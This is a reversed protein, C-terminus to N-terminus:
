NLDTFTQCLIDRPKCMVKLPEAKPLTIGKGESLDVKEEGVRKWEFCHILSGLALGVIRQALAAGPCARRGMGFPIILKHRESENGEFREPNFRLPEDWVNPDRHMAWANVMLLTGRPVDYGAVKCDDSSFHPLLLPVAPFLRMTEYIICQLYPLKALDPENLFRDQGDICNDIEDRAKRLVEPHNVLLTMAWEITVSSTDTGAVLLVLIFGKIIEDTYYEPQSEQLSLLHDVVSNGNKNLRCGEILNQLFTDMKNHVKRVNKEFNGYDILKLIPFFDGLNSIGGYQLVEEILARFVSAEHNNSLEEQGYYRKGTMMRMVNNYALEKLTSRIQVRSFGGNSLRYLERLMFRVEERRIFLFGNLRNSSLLDVTMLRRLNRWHDGYPSSTVTTYNYGFYKTVVFKPRNAFIIDNKTLCEEITSPSSVIVALQTGLQLSFIPGLKQSLNQLSRHAPFKLLHLHGILPVSPPSPPLNRRHRHSLVSKLFIFVLVSSSLSILILSTQDM